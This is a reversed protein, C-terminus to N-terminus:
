AAWEVPFGAAECYELARVHIAAEVNAASAIKTSTPVGLEHVANIKRCAIDHDIGAEKLLDIAHNGAQEDLSPTSAPASAIKSEFATILEAAKAAAEKKAKEEKEDEKGEESKGKEEKEGDKGKANALFAPPMEGAIKKLEDVYAHAMIRGMADAEAVKVAAARKEQFEADAAALKSSAEKEKEAKEKKKAEEEAKPDETAAKADMAVKFLHNVTEDTLKTVDLGKAVCLNTFFDIQAQKELDENTPAIAAATKTTGFIEGLADTMNQGSM